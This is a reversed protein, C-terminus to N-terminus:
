AQHQNRQYDVSERKRQAHIPKAPNTEGTQQKTEDTDQHHQQRLRAQRWRLEGGPHRQPHERREAVRQSSDKHRPKM